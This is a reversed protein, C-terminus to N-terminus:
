LGPATVSCAVLRLPLVFSSLPSIANGANSRYLLFDLCKGDPVVRRKEAKTFCNYPHDCTACHGYLDSDAKLPFVCHL